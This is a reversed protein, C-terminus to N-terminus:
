GRQTGNIYIRIRATGEAYNQLYFLPICLMRDFPAIDIHVDQNNGEIVYAKIIDGIIQNATLKGKIECNENIIVNRMQGSEAIIDGSIKGSVNVKRANLTGDELLEFSPPMGSSIMSGAIMKGGTILPAKIESGAVLRDGCITGAAILDGDLFMAPEVWRFGNYMRAESHTIEGNSNLSYIILTTDRAPYFGFERYFMQTAIDNDTPFKGDETQIRFIGGAGNEAILTKTNAITLESRGVANVANVGYWYETDSQCDVDTMTMARGLYNTKAEVEAKTIGKYFEFQTGLSSVATMVPRIAVTVSSPILVLGSPKTPPLISFAITTKDGLRGDSAVGRVVANFKGQQLDSLYYETSSVMERNLLEYVNGQWTIAQRLENMGNHFRFVTKEGIIKTLDVEFLEIISEQEIKSLELLTNLTIM